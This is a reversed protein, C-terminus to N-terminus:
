AELDFESSRDILLITSGEISHKWRRRRDIDVSPRGACRRRDAMGPVVSHVNHVMDTSKRAAKGTVHKGEESIQSLMQGGLCPNLSIRNCFRGKGTSGRKGVTSGDDSGAASFVSNRGEGDSAVSARAGRFRGGSGFGPPLFSFNHKTLQESTLTTITDCDGYTQESRGDISDYADDAGAVADYANDRFAYHAGDHRIDDDEDDSEPQCIDYTHYEALNNFSRLGYANDYCGDIASGNSDESDSNYVKELHDVQADEHDSLHTSVCSDAYDSNDYVIDHHGATSRRKKDSCLASKGVADVAALAHLPSSPVLNGSNRARLGRAPLNQAQEDRRHLLQQEMGFTVWSCKRDADCTGDVSQKRDGESLRISSFSFNEKDLASSKRRRGSCSSRPSSGSGKQMLTNSGSTAGGSGWEEVDKFTQEDINGSDDICALAVAQIAALAIETPRRARGLAAELKSADSKSCKPMYEEDSVVDHHKRSSLPILSRKDHCSDCQQTSTNEGQMGDHSPRLGGKPKRGAIKKQQACESDKMSEGDHVRQLQSAVPVMTSTYTNKCSM